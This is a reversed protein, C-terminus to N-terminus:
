LLRKKKKKYNVFGELFLLCRGVGDAVAEESHSTTECVAVSRGAVKPVGALDKKSFTEPRGAEGPHKPVDSRQCNM